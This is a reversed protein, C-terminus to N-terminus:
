AKIEIISDEDTEMNKPWTEIDEFRNIKAM